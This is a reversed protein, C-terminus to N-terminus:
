EEVEMKAGCNPCYNFIQAYDARYAMRMKLKNTKCVSCTIFDKDLESEIWRGHRVEVVDAAPQRDILALVGITDWENLLHTSLERVKAAIRERDIYEAM